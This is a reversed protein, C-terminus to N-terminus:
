DRVWIKLKESKTGPLNNGLNDNIKANGYINLKRTILYQVMQKNICLQEYIYGGSYRIVACKAYHIIPAVQFLILYFFSSQLQNLKHQLTVTLDLETKNRFLCSWCM